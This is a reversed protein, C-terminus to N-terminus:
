TCNPRCVSTFERILALSFVGYLVGALLFVSGEGSWGTMIWFYSAAVCCTFVASLLLGSLVRMHRSLRNSAILVAATTYFPLVILTAIATVTLLVLTDPGDLSPIEGATHWYFGVWPILSILNLFLISLLSRREMPYTTKETM